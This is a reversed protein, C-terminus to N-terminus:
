AGSMTDGAKNIPTFGLSSTIDSSALTTGATVRGYADTTVKAYTGATGRNTTASHKFHRQHDAISFLRFILERSLTTGATVRGYADTTVKAYTGATGATPLQASNLTGSTIQSASLNPIDSAALSSGSTVRGKSDVVVKSYAGATGVNVLIPNPFAGTLDGGAAGTPALGSAWSLTGSGNTALVQGNSGDAAPLEWTVSSALTDPAKFSSPIIAARITLSSNILLRVTEELQSMEPYPLQVLHLPEPQTLKQRAVSQQTGM